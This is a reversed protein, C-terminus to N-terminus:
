LCFGEAWNRDWRSPQKLGSGRVELLVPGNSGSKLLSSLLGSLGAGSAIFGIAGGQLNLPPM